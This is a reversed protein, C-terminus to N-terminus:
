ADQNQNKQREAVADKSCCYAYDQPKIIETKTPLVGYQVLEDITKNRHIPPIERSRTPQIVDELIIHTEIGQYAYECALVRAALWRLEGIAQPEQWLVICGRQDEVLQELYAIVQTNGTPLPKRPSGDVIDAVVFLYLAIEHTDNKALAALYQEIELKTWQSM